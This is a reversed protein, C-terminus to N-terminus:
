FDSNYDKIYSLEPISEKVIAIMGRSVQEKSLRFNADCKKIAEILNRRTVAM